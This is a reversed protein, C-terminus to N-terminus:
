FAETGESFDDPYLILHLTVNQQVPGLRLVTFDRPSALKYDAREEDVFELTAPPTIITGRVSIVVFFTQESLRGGERVLVIDTILTEFDPENFTYSHPDLLGSKFM